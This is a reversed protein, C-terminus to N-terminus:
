TSMHSRASLCTDATTAQSCEKPPCAEAMQLVGESSSHCQRGSLILARQMGPLLTLPESM